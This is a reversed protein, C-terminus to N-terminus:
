NNKDNLLIRILVLVAKPDIENEKLYQRLKEFNQM